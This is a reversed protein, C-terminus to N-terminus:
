TGGIALFNSVDGEYACRIFSESNPEVTHAPRPSLLSSLLTSSPSSQNLHHFFEFTAGPKLNGGIYCELFLDNRTASDPQVQFDIFAGSITSVIM